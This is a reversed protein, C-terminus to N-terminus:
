QYSRAYFTTGRANISRIQPHGGLADMFAYAPSSNQGHPKGTPQKWLPSGKPFLAFALNRWSVFKQGNPMPYDSVDHADIAALAQEITPLSDTM